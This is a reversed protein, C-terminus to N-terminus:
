DIGFFRKANATTAAALEAADMGRIAAVKEAVYRVYAPENRRGRFPEPTLYPCDTEVLLRELPVSQVVEHLKHANAFTVPGAVSVYWGMKLLERVMEVSGSFCHFVGTLGKGEAKVIAMSDAHAERNHIIVPMNMQRAVDLQRIFVQRQVERPSLDYHYDLGIEGVAVVKAQRCWEALKPYDAERAEKADHPHIGVSAYVMAYKGALEVARASSFMDAGANLIAELGAEKARAITEERDDDFRKDDVHAHSDFLM